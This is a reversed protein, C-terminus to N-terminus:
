HACTNYTCEPAATVEREVRVARAAGEAEKAVREVAERAAARPGLEMVEAKEAKM